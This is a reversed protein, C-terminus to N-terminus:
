EESPASGGHEGEGAEVRNYVVDYAQYRKKSAAHVKGLSTQMRSLTECFVLSTSSVQETEDKVKFMMEATKPNNLREALVVAREGPDRIDQASFKRARILSNKGLEGLAQVVGRTMDQEAELKEMRQGLVTKLAADAPECSQELMDRADPLLSDVFSKQGTQIVALGEMEKLKRRYLNERARKLDSIVMVAGRTFREVDLDNREKKLRLIEQTQGAQSASRLRAQIDAKKDNVIERGDLQLEAEALMTRFLMDWLESDTEINPTAVLHNVIWVAMINYPTQDHFDGIEPRCARFAQQLRGTNKELDVQARQNTRVYPLIHGREELAEVLEDRHEDELIAEDRDDDQIYGYREAVIMENWAELVKLLEDYTDGGPRTEESHDLTSVRLPDVLDEIESPRPGRGQEIRRLVDTNLGLEFPVFHRGAPTTASDVGKTYYGLPTYPYEPTWDMKKQEQDALDELWTKMDGLDREPVGLMGPVSDEFSGGSLRREREMRKIDPNHLYKLVLERTLRKPTQSPRRRLKLPAPPPM